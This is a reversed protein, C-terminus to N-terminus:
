IYTVTAGASPADGESMIAANILETARESLWALPSAPVNWVHTVVMLLVSLWGRSGCGHERLIILVNFEVM